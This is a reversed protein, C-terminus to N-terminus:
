FDKKMVFNTLLEGRREVTQEQLIYYNRHLFFGLATKSAHVTISSAGLEKARAEIQDALERAVGQHLAEPAVYLRDFYAPEELDAFGALQGNKVAVLAFHAALSSSWAQTDPCVPAWAELQSPAYEGRAITHVARRFLSLIEPLDSPLYSRILM